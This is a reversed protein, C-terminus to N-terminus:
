RALLNPLKYIPLIISLAMGGVLTAMLVILLPELLVSLNKTKTDVETEYLQALKGTTAELSGSKEGIHLMRTTMPPFLKKDIEFSEGLQGGQEVKESAQNIANKYIRNDLMVATVRLSETLPMGSQLLSNINRAFRAINASILLKGFIPLNLFLRHWFPKLAKLKSVLIILGITVITVAIVLLTRETLLKSSGILIRTSLPLTLDFNEFIKIIKPM